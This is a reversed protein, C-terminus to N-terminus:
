GWRRGPACERRGYVQGAGTRGIGDVAGDLGGTKEAGERVGGIVGVIEVGAQEGHAGVAGLQSGREFSEKGIDVIPGGTVDKARDCQGAIDGGKAQGNRAPNSIRVRVGAAKGNLHEHGIAKAIVEEGCIQGGDGVNGGRACVFIVNVHHAGPIKGSSESSM